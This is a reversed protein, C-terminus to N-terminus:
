RDVVEADTIQPQDEEATGNVLVGLQQLAARVYALERQQVIATPRDRGLQAKEVNIGKSVTLNRLATTTDKPDLEEIQGMFQELTQKEAEALSLALDESDQAVKAHIQPVLETRIERYRDAHMEKAWVRLTEEPMDLRRSAEACNGGVLAVTQLGREVEEESYRTQLNHPRAM